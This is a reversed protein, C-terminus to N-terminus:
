SEKIRLIKFIHIEGTKGKIKVPELKEVEIRDHVRDYVAKSIIIEGPGAFGNLRSAMNVADGIVTYEMKVQSGINGSVVIGTNMSIGVSSLLSNGNNAAEKLQKQIDFAAEIAREVHDERVIPVGFVGLVADGIFKDVFGGHKSICTTSIEFYENLRDVVTEPENAESYATFGRIDLFIITAERRSGKLWSNEPDAMIMQLVEHGVYKGFSKEMLSKIWLERSMRNFAMALNGLEDNRDLDVKIQYNGKGIEQTALVLKSVPRSFRFGLWVAIVIGIFIIGSTLFIISFTRERILHEIFEISIGIHVEGLEKDKFFIPKTLNLVHEGSDSIYNFYSINHKKTLDTINQFEGLRTGILNVDTHAKIIKKKDVIIAYKLGEVSLVEKILTNLGLINDELLPIRANDSFYNLSMIGMKVSQQYLLQKQQGLIVLSLSIISLLILFITAISLQLWIPIGIRTIIKPFTGKKRILEEINESLSKISLKYYDNIVNVVEEETAFGLEVVLRGIYVPKGHKFLREKQVHLAKQLQNDTIINHKVLLRGLSIEHDIFKIFM